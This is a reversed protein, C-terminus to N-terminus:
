EMEGMARIYPKLFDLAIGPGPGLKTIHPDTKFEEYAISKRGGELGRDKYRKAAAYPLLYQEGKTSFEIIFFAFGGLLYVQRLYDMQHPQVHTENGIDFRTEVNTQKADFAVTIGGRITGIFDVTSKKEYFTKGRFTKM